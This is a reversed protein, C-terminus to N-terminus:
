KLMKSEEWCLECEREFVLDGFKVTRYAILVIVPKVLVTMSSQLGSHCKHKTFNSGFYISPLLSFNISQIPYSLWIKEM